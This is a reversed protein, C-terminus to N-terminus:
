GFRLGYLSIGCRSASTFKLQLTGQSNKSINKAIQYLKMENVRIITRGSEDMFIDEGAIEEHLPDGNLEVTIETTDLLKPLSRALISIFSGQLQVEIQSTPDFTVIQENDKMWSGTIKLLEPSKPLQHIPTQFEGVWGKGNENKKFGPAPYQTRSSAFDIRNVDFILDGPDHAPPLLPLGPEAIRLFKQIKIESDNFWSTGSSSFLIRNEHFLVLTPNEEIRFASHLLGEQDAIFIFPLKNKTIWQQIFKRDQLFRFYPRFIGIFGLGLTSYRKNWEKLYHLLSVSSLTTIDFFFFLWGKKLFAPDLPYLIIGNKKKVAALFPESGYWFPELDKKALEIAEEPTLAKEKKKWTM